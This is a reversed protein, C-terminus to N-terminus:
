WYRSPFPCGYPYGYYYRYSSWYLSPYYASGYSFPYGYGYGYGGWYPYGYGILYPDGYYSYFYPVGAGFVGRAANDLGGGGYYNPLAAGVGTDTLASLQIWPGPTNLDSFQFKWQQAAGTQVTQTSGNSLTITVTATQANQPVNALSGSVSSGTSNPNDLAISLGAGVSQAAVTSGAFPALLVAVVLVFAVLARIM